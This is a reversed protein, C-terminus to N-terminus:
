AEGEKKIKTGFYFSIIILALEYFKEAPIQGTVGLYSIVGVIDFTILSKVDILKAIKNLM